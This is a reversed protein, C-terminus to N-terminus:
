AEGSLYKWLRKVVGERKDDDAAAVLAAIKDREAVSLKDIVGQTGDPDDLPEIELAEGAENYAKEIGPFRGTEILRNKTVEAAVETPMVGADVYTKITEANRKDVESAEVEDMTSLPAFAWYVDAPRTGLASPILYDDLRDLVPRLEVNQKAKVMREFDRQENKGSSNLGGPSEGFLRSYPIDAAGALAVNFSRQVDPLGTFSLQRTEWKEGESGAMPAGDILRINFVSQFLAAVQLRKSLLAEYETTALSNTLGPITITDVKAENLLAAINQQAGDANKLQMELSMLLPDGWFGSSDTAGLPLKQGIVPIVRSPHIRVGNLEYHEPHGFDPSNLDNSIPGLTIQHRSVALVYRLANLGVRTPAPSASNGPLGLILAAGGYLRAAVRADRVRDRIQLRREYAELGEIDTEDAQWNRWERTEEYPVIDHIKRSLGSTRYSAEIQYQDLYTLNYRSHTSKDAATGAGSIVNMLGDNIRSSGAPVRYSPKETANETM